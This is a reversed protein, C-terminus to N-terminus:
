QGLIGATDDGHRILDNGPDDTMGYSNFPKFGILALLEDPLESRVEGRTGYVLNGLQRIMPGAFYTTVGVRAGDSTNLGSGHWTRGDWALISGATGEVQLEDYSEGATPINGSLHSRPVVRTAGNSVTFDTM